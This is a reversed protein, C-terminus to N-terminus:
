IYKCSVNLKKILCLILLFPQSLNLAFILGCFNAYLNDGFTKIKIKIYQDNYVPLTNLKINPLGEIATWITKKKLLKGDNICFSILENKKDKDEDETLTKVYRSIKPLILVLPRIVEDLYEILYEFNTKREILKSFVIDDFNVDWIEIPKKQLM